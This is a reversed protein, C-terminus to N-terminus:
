ENELDEMLEEVSHFKKYKEPHKKMEEAEKLAEELDKSIKPKKSVEFPLKNEKLVAKIFMNVAVSVNMGVDDCFEEFKKKDTENVRISLYSQAHAM